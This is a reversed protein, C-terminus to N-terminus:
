QYSVRKYEEVINYWITMAHDQQRQQIDKVTESRSQQRQFSVIKPESQVDISLDNMGTIPTSANVVGGPRVGLQCIYCYSHQRSNEATCIPCVWQNSPLSTSPQSELTSLTPYMSQPKIRTDEDQRREEETTTPATLTRLVAENGILVEGENTPVVILHESTRNTSDHSHTPQHPHPRDTQIVHATECQECYMLEPHNTFTCQPCVWEQNPNASPVSTIDERRDESISRFVKKIFQGVNSTRERTEQHSSSAGKQNRINTAIYGCSECIRMNEDNHRTCQPCSWYMEWNGRLRAFLGGRRRRKLTVEGERTIERTPSRDRNEVEWRSTRCMRCLEDSVKNSFTCQSCSWNTAM